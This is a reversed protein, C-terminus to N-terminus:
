GGLLCARTTLVASMLCQGHQGVCCEWARCAAAPKGRLRGRGRRGAGEVLGWGRAWRAARDTECVQKRFQMGITPPRRAKEQESREDHFLRALLPHTSLEMVTLLDQTLTSRNKDVFADVSYVVDGTRTGRPMGVGTYRDPKSM